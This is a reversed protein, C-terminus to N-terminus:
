NLNGDDAVAVAVERWMRQSVAEVEVVEKSDFPL